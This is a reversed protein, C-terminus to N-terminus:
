QFLRPNVRVVKDDGPFVEPRGDQNSTTFYLMGDPGATVARIRGFQKEFHAIIKVPREGIKAQYLSEGRLGGFFMDGEYFAMGSPAWTYSASSHAVPKTMGAGQEDGEYDPWGYNKGPEILNLEDLATQGHETAWLRGQADWALGQPNRHGYSWVATGFPNDAPISGDDNLRLIKGAPSKLDQANAPTGADGVTVYLKGDPGFALRGGDHNHAGPIDQIFTKRQVLADGDLRYRVVRNTLGSETETTQYLYIWGNDAFKPHIAVGLLGGEGFIGGGEVGAIATVAGDPAIRQLRGARETVLLDGNPLFAIDWPIVLGTAVTMVDDGRADDRKVGRVVGSRDEHVIPRRKFFLRGRNAYIGYGVGVVAAIVFLANFVSRLKM